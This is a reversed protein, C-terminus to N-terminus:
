TMVFLKKASSETEIECLLLSRLLKVLLGHFNCLIFITEILRKLQRGDKCTSRQLIVDDVLLFPDCDGVACM